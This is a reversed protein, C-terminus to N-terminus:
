TGEQKSVFVNFLEAPFAVAAHLEEASNVM